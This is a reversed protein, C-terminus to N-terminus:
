ELKGLMLSNGVYTSPFNFYYTGPILLLHFYIVKHKIIGHLEKLYKKQITSCTAASPAVVGPFM